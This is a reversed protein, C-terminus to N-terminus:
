VLILLVWFLIQVPLALCALNFVETRRGITTYNVRRAPELLETMATLVAAEGEQWPLRQLEGSSLTVKWGRPRELRIRHRRWDIRVRVSRRAGATPIRGHDAVPFLVWICCLLGAFVAALAGVVLGIPHPDGLAQPAFVSSVIGTASLVINSRNRLENLVTAHRELARVTHEYRLRTM